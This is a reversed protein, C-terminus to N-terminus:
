LHERVQRAVDEESDAAFLIDAGREEPRERYRIRLVLSAADHECDM